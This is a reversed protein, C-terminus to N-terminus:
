VVRFARLRASRARPNAGVETATPRVPKATIITGLPKGRCACLPVHPECVCARAWERFSHKVVRDEGSHYSIVALIGESSLADRLAPLASQLQEIEDNVVIRVAQFIRAFDSPGARPGRVARIAKVLDDATALPRATRRKVIERALRRAAREDAFERFARTLEDVTARNLWDAAGPGTGGMRMDLLTGRRFSFGREDTDVQLSSVGLDLLVFDPQFQRIEELVGADGFAGHVLRVRDPLAKRAATLAEPDRDIGLSSRHSQQLVALHGGLGVTADVIRSAGAALDIVEAVLVPVHKGTAM